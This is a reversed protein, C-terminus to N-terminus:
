NLEFSIYIFLEGRLRVNISLFQLETVHRLLCGPDEPLSQHILM